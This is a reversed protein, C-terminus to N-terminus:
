EDPVDELSKLMAHALLEVGVSRGQATLPLDPPALDSKAHRVGKDGVITLRVESPTWAISGSDTKAILQALASIAATLRPKQKDEPPASVVIVSVWEAGQAFAEEARDFVRHPKLDQLCKAHYTVAVQLGAEELAKITSFVPSHESNAKPATDPHNHCICGDPPCPCTM